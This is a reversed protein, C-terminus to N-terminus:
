TQAKREAVFDILSLYKKRDDDPLEKRLKRSMTSDTIGIAEALEWLKVGRKEAYGRLETNKM